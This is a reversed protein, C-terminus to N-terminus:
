EFEFKDQALFNELLKDERDQNFLFPEGEM